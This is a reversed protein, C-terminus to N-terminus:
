AAAFDAIAKPKVRLKFFSIARRAGCVACYQPPRILQTQGPQVTTGRLAALNFSADVIRLTVAVIASGWSARGPSMAFATTNREESESARWMVPWVNTTAPPM